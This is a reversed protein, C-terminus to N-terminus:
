GLAEWDKAAVSGYPELYYYGKSMGRLPYRDTTKLQDALTKVVVEVQQGVKLPLGDVQVSGNDNVIV